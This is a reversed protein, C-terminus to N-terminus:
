FGIAIGIYPGSIRLDVDANDDEDEYEADLRSYRWGLAISGTVREGLIRFRAGVDFDLFTASDGSSSYDMGSVLGSLEFRGIEVGAQLAIVPVPLTTELGIEGPNGSDRSTVTADLDVVHVGLGLGVEVTDSPVFDFTVIGSAVWLNFETAVDTGAGLTVGDDSLQGTLTGDGESASGMWALVLHPSGFEIDARIGPSADDAELNLAAEVDNTVPDDGPAAAALHGTPELRGVRPEVSFSPSSCAACGAALILTVSIRSM